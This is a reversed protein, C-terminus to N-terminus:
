DGEKFNKEGCHFCYQMDSKILRNRVDEVLNNTDSRKIKGKESDYNYTKLLKRCKECCVYVEFRNLSKDKIMLKM